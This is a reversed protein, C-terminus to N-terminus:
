FEEGGLARLLALAAAIGRRTSPLRLQRALERWTPVKASAVSASTAQIGSALREVLLPTYSGGLMALKAIRTVAARGAKSDIKELIVALADAGGYRTAIVLEELRKPEAHSGDLGTTTGSPIYDIPEAM